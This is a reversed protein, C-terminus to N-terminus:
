NGSGKKSRESSPESGRQTDHDDGGAHPEEFFRRHLGGVITELRDHAVVATVSIPSGGLAVIEPQWEALAKLVEGRRSSGVALGSGVVCIIARNEIAEVRALADLSAQVIEPMAQETVCTEGGVREPDSVEMALHIGGQLDLGLKIGNTYLYGLAIALAATIVAVRGRLTKLM